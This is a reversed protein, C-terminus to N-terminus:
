ERVENAKTRKSGKIRIYTAQIYLYTRKKKMSEYERKEKIYM